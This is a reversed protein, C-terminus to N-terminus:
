MKGVVERSDILGLGEYDKESLLEWLFQAIAGDDDGRSALPRVAGEGEAGGAKERPPYGIGGARRGCVSVKRV